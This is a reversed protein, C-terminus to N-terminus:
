DDIESIVISNNLICLKTTYIGNAFADFLNASTECPLFLEKFVREFENLNINKNTVFQCKVKVASENHLNDFVDLGFVDDATTYTIVQLDIDCDLLYSVYLKNVVFTNCIVDNFHKIENNYFKVINNMIIRKKWTGENPFSKVATVNETFHCKDNIVYSLEFKM